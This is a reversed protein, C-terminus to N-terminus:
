HPILIVSINDAGGRLNADAVLDEVPNQSNAILAAIRSDPLMNYLGDSCLLFAGSTDLPQSLMTIEPEFRDSNGMVRLLASRDEDDSIADFSIEGQVFKKYSVSHDATIFRVGGGYFHYLRSDGTHACFIDNGQICLLVATTKMSRYQPQREQRNILRENASEMAEYIADAYIKESNKLNEIITEAVLESAVEGNGHGGLGDALVFIGGDAGGNVYCSVYDENHNRGGKNTYQYYKIRVIIM